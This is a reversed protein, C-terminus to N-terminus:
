KPKNLQLKAQQILEKVMKSGIQGGIKGANESTLNRNRGKNLPINLEQAIEYKVDEGDTRYGAKKMVEKKFAIMEPKKQKSM